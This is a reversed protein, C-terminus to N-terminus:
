PGMGALAKYEPNTPRFINNRPDLVWRGNVVKGPRVLGYAKKEAAHARGGNIESLDSVWFNRLLSALSRQSTRQMVIESVPDVLLDVVFEGEELEAVDNVGDASFWGAPLCSAVLQTVFTDIHAAPLSQRPLPILALGFYLASLSTTPQTQAHYGAVPLSKIKKVKTTQRRQTRTMEPFFDPDVEAEEPFDDNDPM